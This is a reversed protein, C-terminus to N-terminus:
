PCSKAASAPAPPAPTLSAVLLYMFIDMLLLACVAFVVFSITRWPAASRRWGYFALVSMTSLVLYTVAIIIGIVNAAQQCSASM